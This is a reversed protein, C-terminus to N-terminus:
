LSHILVLPVYTNMGNYLINKGDFIYSGTFWVRNINIKTKIKEIKDNFEYKDILKKGIEKGKKFITVAGVVLMSTGLIGLGKSMTIGDIVKEGDKEVIKGVIYRKM